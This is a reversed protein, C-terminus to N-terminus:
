PAGAVRAGMAPPGTDWASVRKFTGFQFIAMNVALLVLLVMKIRFPINEYYTTANGIFMLTGTIAALIFARWTWPLVQNDLYTISVKKQALGLLRLDVLAITGFVAALAVVHISEIAPFYRESVIMGLQTGSLWECFEQIM